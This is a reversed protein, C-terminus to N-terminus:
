SGLRRKGHNLAVLAEAARARVEEVAYSFDGDADAEVQARGILFEEGPRTVYIALFEGEKREELEWPRVAAHRERRLASRRAIAGVVVIVLVLLVAVLALVALLRM